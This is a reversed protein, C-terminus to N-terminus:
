TSRTGSATTWTRAASISSRPGGRAFGNASARRRTRARFLAPGQSAIACTPMSYRRHAPNYVAALVDADVNDITENELLAQRTVRRCERPSPSNKKGTRLPKPPKPRHTTKDGLVGAIQLYEKSSFRFVLRTFDEEATPGGSRRAMERDRPASRAQAYLAGTGVFIAGTEFNNVLALLTVTGSRLEFTGVDMTSRPMKVATRRAWGPTATIASLGSRFERIERKQETVEVRTQQAAITLNLSLDVTGHLDVPMILDDFGDKSVRVSYKGPGLNPATFKGTEDSALVLPQALSGGTIEVRAGAVVSGSADKVTGSITDARVPIAAALLLLGAFLYCVIRREWQVRNPQSM